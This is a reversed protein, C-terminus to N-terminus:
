QGLQQNLEDRDKKRKRLIDVYTQSMDNQLYRNADLASELSEDIRDMIELAMALNYLAKGKNKKTAEKSAQRFLSEAGAYNGEDLAENGSKIKAHGSPYYKRQVSIEYPSIRRFYQMGLSKSMEEIIDETEGIASKADSRSEGEASLDKNSVKRNNDIVEGDCSYIKWDSNMDISFSARHMTVDETIVQEREKGDETITRRKEKTTQYTSFSWDKDYRFKELSLIGTAEARKCIKETEAQTLVKGSEVNSSTYASQARKQDILSFRPNRADSMNRILENISRDSEDSNERNVPALVKINQDINIEAPITIDFRKTKTCALTMFILYM